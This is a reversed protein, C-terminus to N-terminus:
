AEGKGAPFHITPAPVTTTKKVRPLNMDAWRAAEEILFWFGKEEFDEGHELCPTAVRIMQGGQGIEGLGFMKAMDMAEDVPWTSAGNSSGQEYTGEPVIFYIAGAYGDEIFQWKWLAFAIGNYTYIM